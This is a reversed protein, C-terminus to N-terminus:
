SYLYIRKDKKGDKKNIFAVIFVSYGFFVSIKEEVHTHRFKFLKEHSFISYLIYKMNLYFLINKNCKFFQFTLNQNILNQEFVNEYAIIQNSEFNNRSENQVFFISSFIAIIIIIATLKFNSLKM